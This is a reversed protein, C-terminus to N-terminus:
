VKKYIAAMLATKMRMGTTMAVHYHQHYFVTQSWSVVLMGVAIVYGKWERDETAQTYTILLGSYTVYNGSSLLPVSETTDGNSDENHNNNPSSFSVYEERTEKMVHDNSCQFRVNGPVYNRPLDACVAQLGLQALILTYSVFFIVLRGVDTVVMWPIYFLMSCWLLGNPVFVLYSSQFCSTFQPWSSNLLLNLDANVYRRIVPYARRARASERM